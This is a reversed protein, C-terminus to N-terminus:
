IFVSDIAVLITIVGTTTVTGVNKASIAFFEGPLVPIPNNFAMYVGNASGLTGVAATAAYSEWGLPIRRPAKATASETTALSVNTHGYCAAYAYYVPGGALITTVIGQIKIGKIFLTKGPVAASPVPNAYSCLIGDTNATLTPLVAFQGGLGLAGAGATANAIAAGAGPALSNTYLATSGVTYGTQGQGGHRGSYAALTGVDMLLGGADQLGVCLYGIKLTNALTPAIATNIVRAFWPQSPSYTPFGSTNPTALVAQVAGNISFFVRDNEVVIKYRSMVGETPVTMSATTIEAGNTNIVGVLTGTATYRFFAGDTPTASATAIGFGMEIVCNNQPPQTLLADFTTYTAMDAYFPFHPYTSVRAVTNLTTIASANLNLTGGAVTVTMTTVPAQMIASNLTTNNFFENMLAVPQGAAIRGQASTRVAENLLGYPDGSASLEGVLKVFGAQSPVTPTVVKLNNDATVEAGNGSSTGVIKSDLAM